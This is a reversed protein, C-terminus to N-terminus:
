VLLIWIELMPVIHLSVFFGNLVVTHLWIGSKSVQDSIDSSIFGTVSIKVMVEGVNWRVLINLHMFDRDLCGFVLLPM